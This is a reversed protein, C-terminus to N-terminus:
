RIISRKHKTHDESMQFSPDLKRELIELEMWFFEFVLRTNHVISVENYVTYEIPTKLGRAMEIPMQNM